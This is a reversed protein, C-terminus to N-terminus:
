VFLLISFGPVLTSLCIDIKSYLILINNLFRRIEPFSTKNNVTRLVDDTSVTLYSMNGDSLVKIYISHDIIIKKYKNVTVMVDILSIRQQISPKTGKIGNMYQLCFPGNEKNFPFNQYSNELCNIYYTPPIVCVIEHIPVNKNQLENSVDLIRATLRHM